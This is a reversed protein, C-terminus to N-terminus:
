TWSGLSLRPRGQDFRRNSLSPEKIGRAGLGLILRRCLRWEPLKSGRGHLTRQNGADHGVSVIEEWSAMAPVMAFLAVYEEWYLSPQASQSVPTSICIGRWYLHLGSIDM